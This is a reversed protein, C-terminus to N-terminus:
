FYCILEKMQSQSMVRLFRTSILIAVPPFGFLLLANKVKASAYRYISVLGCGM